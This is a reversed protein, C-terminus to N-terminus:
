DLNVTYSYGSIGGNIGNDYFYAQQSNIIIISSAGIRYM